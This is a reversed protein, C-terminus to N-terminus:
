VSCITPLTLHTYSVTRIGGAAATKLRVPYHPICTRKAPSRFPRRDGARTLGLPNAADHHLTFFLYGWGCLLNWRASRPAAYSCADCGIAAPHQETPPTQTIPTFTPVHTDILLSSQPRSSLFRQSKSEHASNSVIQAVRLPLRLLTGLGVDTVMAMILTGENEDM